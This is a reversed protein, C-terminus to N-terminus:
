NHQRYMAATIQQPLQPQSTKVETPRAGMLNLSPELPDEEKKLNRKPCGPCNCIESSQIHRELLVPSSESYIEMSTVLSPGQPLQTSQVIGHTRTQQYQPRQNKPFYEPNQSSYQPKTQPPYQPNYQPNYPPRSTYPKYSPNYNGPHNPNQYLSRYQSNRQTYNNNNQPYNNNVSYAMAQPDECDAHECENNGCPPLGYWGQTAVPYDEYYQPEKTAFNSISPANYAFAVPKPNVYLDTEPKSWPHGHAPPRPYHNGNQDQPFERQSPKPNQLRM